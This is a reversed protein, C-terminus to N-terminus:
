FRDIAFSGIGNESVFGRIFSLAPEIAGGTLEVMYAGGFRGVMNSVAEIGSFIGLRSAYTFFSRGRNEALIAAMAESKARDSGLVKARINGRWIGILLNFLEDDYERLMRLNYEWSTGILAATMITKQSEAEGGDGSEYAKTLLRDIETDRDLCNYAYPNTLLREIEPQGAESLKLRIFNRNASGRATVNNRTTENLQEENFEVLDLREVIPRVTQYRKDVLEEIREPNGSPIRQRESGRSSDSPRESIFSALVIVEDPSDTARKETTLTERILLTGGGRLREYSLNLSEDAVIEGFDLIDRANIQSDSGIFLSGRNTLSNLPSLDVHHIDVVASNQIDISALAGSLTGTARFTGSGVSLSSGATEFRVDSFSSTGYSNVKIAEGFYVTSDGIDL